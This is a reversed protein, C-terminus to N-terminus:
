GTDIRVMPSVGEGRFSLVCYMVTQQCERVMDMDHRGRILYGCSCYLIKDMSNLLVINKYKKVLTEEPLNPDESPEIVNGQLDMVRYVAIPDYSGKNLFELKERWRM